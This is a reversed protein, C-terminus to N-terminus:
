DLDDTNKVKAGHLESRGVFLHILSDLHPFQTQQVASILQEARPV